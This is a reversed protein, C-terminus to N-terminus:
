KNKAFITIFDWMAPRFNHINILLDALSQKRKLEFLPPFLAGKRADARLESLVKPGVSIGFLSPSKPRRSAIREPSYSRRQNRFTLSKEPTPECTWQVHECVSFTNAATKTPASCSEVM